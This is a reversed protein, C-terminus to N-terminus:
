RHGAPPLSAPKPLSGTAQLLWRACWHAVDVPGYFMMPCAGPIVSIGRDRCFRVADESISTGLVKFSQHMWVRRIGLDACEHVIAETAKPHTAAMVADIGGPISKLDPYCTDGEVSDAGPNVAFVTYGASRLKKYIANAASQGSRSVGAVAIRKQALFDRIADYVNEM